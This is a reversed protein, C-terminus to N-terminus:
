RQLCLCMRVAARRTRPVCVATTRDCGGQTLLDWTSRTGCVGGERGEKGPPFELGRPVYLGM